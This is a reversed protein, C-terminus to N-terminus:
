SHKPRLSELSTTLEATFCQPLAWSVKGSFQTLTSMPAQGILDISLMYNAFNWLRFFKVTPAQIFHTSESYKITIASNKQLEVIM